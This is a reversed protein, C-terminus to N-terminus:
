WSCVLQGDEQERICRKRMQRNLERQLEQQEEAERFDDCIGGHLEGADFLGQCKECEYM